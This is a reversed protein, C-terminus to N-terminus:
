NEKISFGCFGKSSKRAFKSNRLKKIISFAKIPFRLDGFFNEKM